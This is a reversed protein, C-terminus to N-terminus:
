HDGSVPFRKIAADEMQRMLKKETKTKDNYRLLHLTGHIIVRLIESQFSCHYKVSNDKVREFSIYIDGSIEKDTSFNFTITDTFYDHNLYKKNIDLLNQDDVFIINITGLKQNHESIIKKLWNKIKHQPPVTTQDCLSHFFISM